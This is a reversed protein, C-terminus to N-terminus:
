FCLNCINLYEIPLINEYFLYVRIFHRIIFLSVFEKKIENRITTSEFTSLKGNSDQVMSLMVAAFAITSVFSFIMTCKM